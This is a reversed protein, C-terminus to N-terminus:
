TSMTSNLSDISQAFRRRSFRNWFGTVTVSVVRRAPSLEVIVPSITLADVAGSVLGLATLVALRGLSKSIAALMLTMM